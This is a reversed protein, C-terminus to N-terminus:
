RLPSRTRKKDSAEDGHEADERKRKPSSTPVAPTNSTLTLPHPPSQLNSHGPAVFQPQSLRSAYSFASEGRLLHTRPTSAPQTTLTGFTAPAETFIGRTESSLSQFEQPPPLPSLSPSDPSPLTDRGNRPDLARHQVIPPHLSVPPASAPQEPTIRGFTPDTSYHYPYYGGPIKWPPVEADSIHYFANQRRILREPAPTLHGPKRTPHVVASGVGQSSPPASDCAVPDTDAEEPVTSPGPEPASHSVTAPAHITPGIRTKLERQLDLILEELEDQRHCISTLQAQLEHIVSTLVQNTVEESCVTKSTASSSPATVSSSSM